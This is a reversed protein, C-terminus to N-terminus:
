AQHNSGARWRWGWSALVAGVSDALVDWGSSTRSPVFAQHVEDSVGYLSAALIAFGIAYQEGIPGAAHRFARYCLIGLIGYEIMHLVKDSVLKFLSPAFEEPHPLSSLIFITGAYMIVPVWYWAFQAASDKTQM